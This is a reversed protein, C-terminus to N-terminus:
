RDAGSALLGSPTKITFSKRIESERMPTNKAHCVDYFECRGKGVCSRDNMPWVENEDYWSILRLQDRAWEYTGELQDDSFIYPGFIASRESKRKAWEAASDAAKEGMYVGRIRAGAIPLGTLLRMIAVYGKLQFSNGYQAAWFETPWQTTCKFDDVYIFEGQQNPLDILGGYVIDNWRAALPTEALSLYGHEDVILEPLACAELNLTEHHLKLPKSVERRQWDDFYNRLVIECHGATLYGHKSMPPTKFSGWRDHLIDVAESLSGESFESQHLHELAAHLCSGAHLPASDDKPTLNRRYRLYGKRACDAFTSLYSYDAIQMELLTEHAIPAYM